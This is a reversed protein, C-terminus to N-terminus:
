FWDNDFFHSYKQLSEEKMRMLVEHNVPIQPLFQIETKKRKKDERYDNRITLSFEVSVALLSKQKADLKDKLMNVSFEDSGDKIISSFARKSIRIVRGQFTRIAQAEKRKPYNVPLLTSSDMILTEETIGSFSLVSNFLDSKKM